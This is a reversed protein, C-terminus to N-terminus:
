PVWVVFVVVVAVTGALGLLVGAARRRNVFFVLVLGTLAAIIMLVASVDIVLSWAAGADRGKHLDNFVAVWGHFQEALEYRGTQRDIFADAAYGPGKFTVSCEDESVTFSSLAGHIGHTARLCEVVALKDVRDDADASAGDPGPSSPEGQVWKVNLQGQAEAASEVAGYFWDPHNVTIGTASFFLVVALGLMSLYTHLWRTLERLKRRLRGGGAPGDGAPPLEPTVDGIKNRATTTSPLPSSNSM